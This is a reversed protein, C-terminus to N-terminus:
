GGTRVAHRAAPARAAPVPSTLARACVRAIGYTRADTVSEQTDLMARQCVREAVCMCARGVCVDPQAHDEEWYQRCSETQDRFLVAYLDFLAGDGLMAGVDFCLLAISVLGKLVSKFARDPVYRSRVDLLAPAPDDDSARLSALMYACAGGRVAAEAHAAWDWQPRSQRSCADFIEPVCV